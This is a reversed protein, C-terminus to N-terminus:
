RYHKSLASNSNNNAFIIIILVLGKTLHLFISFLNIYIQQYFFIFIKRYLLNKVHRPKKQRVKLPKLLQILIKNFKM